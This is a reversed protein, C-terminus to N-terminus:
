FLLSVSHRITDKIEVLDLLFQAAATRSENCVKVCYERFIPDVNFSHGFVDCLRPIDIVVSGYTEELCNRNKTETVTEILRM